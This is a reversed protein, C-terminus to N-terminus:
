VPDQRRTDPDAAAQRARRWSSPHEDLARGLESNSRLRSAITEWAEQDAEWNRDLHSWDADEAGAADTLASALRALGEVWRPELADDSNANKLAFCAFVATGALWIAAHRLEEADIDRFLVPRLHQDQLRVSSMSARATPHSLASVFGYYRGYAEGRTVDGLRDRVETRPWRTSRDIWRQAAEPNRSLYQGCGAAEYATRLLPAVSEYYGFHLLLLSARLTRHALAFCATGAVANPFLADGPVNTQALPVMLHAVTAGALALANSAAEPLGALGQLHANDKATLLDDDMGGTYGLPAGGLAM